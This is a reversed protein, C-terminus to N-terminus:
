AVWDNKIVCKGRLAVVNDEDRFRYLGLLGKLRRGDSSTMSKQKIPFVIPVLSERRQLDANWRTKVRRKGYPEFRNRLAAVESNPCYLGIPTPKGESSEIQDFNKESTMRSTLWPLVPTLKAASDRLFKCTAWYGREYFSESLEILHPLLSPRPCGGEFDKRYRLPTMSVGNFADVGCSERFLSRHFSKDKNVLLGVSELSEVVDDFYPTPIILDDGYVLIRRRSRHKLQLTAKCIAWISIAMIPFCLASGMPAFKRLPLISGDPLETAVSRCAEWYDLLESPFLARVLQLSVRDSAEKLDLTAFQADLSAQLAARQNPLQSTFNIEGNNFPSAEIHSKLGRFQSQQIWQIELPEMSILRPGRSDKQVLSVKAIPLVSPELRKYWGSEFSERSLSASFWEYYPFKQHLRQFKRQFNYKSNGREGTAVAGPGHKPIQEIPNFGALLRRVYVGALAVISNGALSEQSIASIEDESNIFTSVVSDVQEQSYPLELKYFLMLIQILEQLSYPDIDPRIAGSHMFVRTTWGQLFAPLLSGKILKFGM